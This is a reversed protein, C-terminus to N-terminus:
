GVDEPIQANGGVIGITPGQTGGIVVVVVVGYHFL